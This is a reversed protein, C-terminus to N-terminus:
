KGLTMNEVSVATKTKNKIYKNVVKKVVEDNGFLNEIGSSTSNQLKELRKASRAVKRTIM